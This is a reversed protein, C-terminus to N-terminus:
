ITLLARRSLINHLKKSADIGKNAKAIKDTIHHGFILKEHLYM